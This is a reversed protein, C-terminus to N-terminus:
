EKYQVHGFFAIQCIFSLDFANNFECINRSETDGEQVSWHMRTCKNKCFEFDDM